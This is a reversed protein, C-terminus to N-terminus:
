WDIETFTPNIVEDQTATSNKTVQSYTPKNTKSQLNYSIIRPTPVPSTSYVKSNPHQINEYKEKFEKSVKVMDDNEFEPNIRSANNEDELNEISFM